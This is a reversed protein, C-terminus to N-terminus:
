PWAKTLAYPTVQASNQPLPLVVAQAVALPMANCGVHSAALGQQFRMFHLQQGLERWNGDPLVQQCAYALGQVM